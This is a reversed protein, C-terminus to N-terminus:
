AGLSGHLAALHASLRPLQPAKGDDALTELAGAARIALAGWKETWRAVVSRNDPNARLASEILAVAWARHWRCDEDLSELIQGLLSDDWRRASQALRVTFLEDILPKICLNLAVLAEGWDYTTLCLEVAERLPQWAPDRQWSDRANTAFSPDVLQLQAMRYAFRQIRRLEDASQFAAAVTIRGSPAMQGVYAAIMQFGHFPFRLPGLVCELRARWEVSMTRDYDGDDISQLIRDVYSERTQALHTYKAYTTERPDVFSEWDNAALFSGAQHRAYWENLPTTVEFGRGPYYLLDTTVIEYENPMRRDRALRSYTKLRSARKPAASLVQGGNVAAM